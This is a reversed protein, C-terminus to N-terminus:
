VTLAKLRPVDTITVTGRSLSVLGEKEFYKLMRSVVERASGLNKAIQDHTATIATSGTKRREDELYSALRKDFSSFLIQSMAWMVDSFREATQRYIFNEVDSNQKMFKRICGSRTILLSSDESAEVYIDFTIESMVCSASLTCVEGPEVRFLTVERGEDSQIYVRAQGSLVVFVGLCEDRDSRIFSGREFDRIASCSIFSEQEDPSLNAWFSYQEQLCSRISNNQITM